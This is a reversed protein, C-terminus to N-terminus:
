TALWNDETEGSRASHCKWGASRALRYAKRSRHPASQNVKLAARRRRANRNCPPHACIPASRDDGLVIARGTLKECLAPWHDWDEQHLADEVSVHSVCEGMPQRDRDNRASTLLSATVNPLSRAPLVPQVRRGCRSVRRAPNSDPRRPNRCPTPSCKKPAPFPPALGGEDGVLSRQFIKITLSAAGSRDAFIIALGDDITKASAPVSV